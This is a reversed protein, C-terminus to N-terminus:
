LHARVTCGAGGPLAVCHLVVSRVVTLLLLHTLAPTHQSCCPWPPQYHSCHQHRATTVSQTHARARPCPSYTSPNFQTLNCDLNPTPARTSNRWGSHTQYHLLRWNDNIAGIGGRGNTICAASVRPSLINVLLKRLPWKIRENAEELVVNMAHSVQLCCWCLAPPIPLCSCLATPGQVLLFDSGAQLSTNPRSSM